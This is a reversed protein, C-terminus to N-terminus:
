AENKEAYHSNPIKSAGACRYHVNYDSDKIKNIRSFLAHLQYVSYHRLSHLNIGGFISVTTIMAEIDIEISNRAKEKMALEAYEKALKGKYVKQEFLLNQKMIVERVEDYNDRNVIGGDKGISYYAELTNGNHLEVEQQFAISLTHYLYEEMAAPPLSLLLCDFLKLEFNIWDYEQKIKDKDFHKESFTIINANKMFKDYHKLPVPKVEGVTEIM